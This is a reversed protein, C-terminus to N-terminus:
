GESLAGAARHLPGLKHWVRASPLNSGRGLKSYGFASEKAGCRAPRKAVFGRITVGASAPMWPLRPAVSGQIGRKERSHRIRQSTRCAEVSMWRIIRREPGTNGGHAAM